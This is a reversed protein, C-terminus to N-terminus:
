IYNIKAVVPQDTPEVQDGPVGFFPTGDENWFLRQIRAHRNHDYLSNGEVKKYPRAHYVLLDYGDEDVSFSNHGPGYEKTEESTVFVPEPTKYWVSPDLLDADQDASLYGVAYTHDTANGSFAIFVKGNRKIVAAGENVYFVSNEWEYEPTSLLVQNKITWPNEMEGIYLNSITDNEVKQAWVLYRKGNNEFTTADLSFSQFETNVQGKEVWTGTLPNPDACEIVYPRIAWVDDREGAAFHVYWKGDIYHLEPAWIHESMIGSEHREWIVVEEAEPLEAITKARRLVIRDYLPYSGTFYYYGDTHKYLYPDARQEIFPKPYTTVRLKGKIETDNENIVNENEWEVPYKAKLGNSLEVEVEKPLVPSTNKEVNLEITPINVIKM